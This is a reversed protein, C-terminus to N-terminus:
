LDKQDDIHKARKMERIYPMHDVGTVLKRRWFLPSEYGEEWITISQITKRCLEISLLSPMARDDIRHREITRILGAVPDEAGPKREGQRNNVRTFYEKLDRHTGLMILAGALVGTVFIDPKPNLSDIFLLENSFLKIAKKLDIDEREHSLRKDQLARPRGRLAINLAEYIFGSKIRESTFALGLEQYIGQIIENIPLTQLRNVQAEATLAAFDASTIEFVQAKLTEPVQLRGSQWLAKRTKGDYKYLEDGVKMLSIVKSYAALCTKQQLFLWHNDDQDAIQDFFAPEKVEVWESYPMEVLSYDTDPSYYLTKM